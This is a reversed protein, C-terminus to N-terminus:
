SADTSGEPVPPKKRPRRPRPRREREPQSDLDTGADAPPVAAAARPARPPPPAGAEPAPAPPALRPATRRLEWVERVAGWALFRSDRAHRDHRVTVPAADGRRVHPAVAMLLEANAAWGARTLLPTKGDAFTRRLVSIRYARFGTFPDGLGRPLAARPLLWPLGKRSWRLPRPAEEGTEVPLSGVVDAGGELKRLLAPVDEPNETFDAQLVVAVDRKPHTSRSVAERLLREVAAAYGGTRESRLVTLPLVRAYPQLVEPTADASADDLVLIEYERPFDEMVRRIKWLLLGVTPAEDLAPICFYIV